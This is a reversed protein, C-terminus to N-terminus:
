ACNDEEPFSLRVKVVKACMKNPLRRGAEACVSSILARAKETADNGQLESPPLLLALRSLCLVIPEQVAAQTKEALRALQVVIDLAIRSNADTKNSVNERSRLLPGYECVLAVFTLLLSTNPSDFTATAVGLDQGRDSLLMKFLSILFARQRDSNESFLLPCSSMSDSRLKM